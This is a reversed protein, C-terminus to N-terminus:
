QHMMCISYHVESMYMCVKIIEVNTFVNDAQEKVQLTSQELTDSLMTISKLQSNFSELTKELIELKVVLEDVDIVENSLDEFFEDVEFELQELSSSVVSINQGLLASMKATEVSSNSVNVAELLEDTATINQVLTDVITRLKIVERQNLSIVEFSLAAQFQLTQILTRYASINSQLNFANMDKSIFTEIMELDATINQMTENAVMLSINLAMVDKYLEGYTAQM